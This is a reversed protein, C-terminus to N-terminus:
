LSFMFTATLPLAANLIVYLGATQWTSTLASASTAAFHSPLADASTPAVQEPTQWPLHSPLHAALPLAPVPPPAAPPSHLPSHEPVHWPEHSPWASTLADPSHLACACAFAEASTFHVSGSNLAVSSVFSTTSLDFASAVRWAISFPRGFSRM